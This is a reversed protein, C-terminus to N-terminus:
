TIINSHVSPECIQENFYNTTSSVSFSSRGLKPRSSTNFKWRALAPPNSIRSHGFHKSYHGGSLLLAANKQRIEMEMEMAPLKAFGHFTSTVIFCGSEGM